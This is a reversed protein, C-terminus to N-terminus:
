VGAKLREIEERVLREALDLVRETVVERVLDRSLREAVRRAVDDVFEDTIAPTSARAERPSPASPPAEGLEDALIASFADAVAWGGRPRPERANAVTHRGSAAPAGATPMTASALALAGPVVTDADSEGLAAGAHPPVAALSEDIRDLVDDLTPGAANGPLRDETRSGDRSADGGAAKALLERVLAIVMQPEFPKALVGDCGAARARPEDLQEFAGTMLVVPIHRLAPTGKVFEAVAYGDRGPMSVDALVIDPPDTTLRDLAREGDGVAIVQMGEDAFTLEIVKQVTVSDDALLIKPTM